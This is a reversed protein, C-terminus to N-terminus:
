NSRLQTMAKKEETVRMRFNGMELPRNNKFNKKAWNSIQKCNEHKIEMNKPKSENETPVGNEHIHM